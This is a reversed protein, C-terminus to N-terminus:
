EGQGVLVLDVADNVHRDVALGLRVSASVKADIHVLQREQQVSRSFSAHATDAKGTGACGVEADGMARETLVLREGDFRHDRRLRELFGPLYEGEVVGLLGADVQDVHSEATDIRL